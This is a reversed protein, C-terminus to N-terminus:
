LPDHPLLECLWHSLLSQMSFILIFRLHLAMVKGTKQLKLM